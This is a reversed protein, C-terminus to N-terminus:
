FVRRNHTILDGAIIKLMTTKGAGNPGVIGVADGAEVSLSLEDIVKVGFSKSLSNISLLTSM